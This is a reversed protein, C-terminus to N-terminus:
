TEESTEEETIKSMGLGVQTKDISDETVVIQGVGTRIVESIMIANTIAVETKGEVEIKTFKHNSSDVLEM